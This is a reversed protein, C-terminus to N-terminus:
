GYRNPYCAGDHNGKCQLAGWAVHLNVTGCVSDDNVFMDVNERQISLAFDEFGVAHRQAAAPQPGLNLSSVIFYRLTHVCDHPSVSVAGKVTSQLYTIWIESLNALCTSVAKIGSAVDHNMSDPISQTPNTLQLPPDIPRFTADGHGVTLHLFDPSSYRVTCGDFDIGLNAAHAHEFFERRIWWPCVSNTPVM